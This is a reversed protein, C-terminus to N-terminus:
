LQKLVGPTSNRVQWTHFTKGYTDVLRQMELTEAATPVSPAVLQGSLVQARARGVRKRHLCSIVAIPCGYVHRNYPNPAVLQGSLVQACARGVQRDTKHMVSDQKSTQVHPKCSRPAQVHRM